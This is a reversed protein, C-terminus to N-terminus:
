ASSIVPGAGAATITARAGRGHRAPLISRIRYLDGRKFMTGGADLTWHCSNRQSSPRCNGIIRVSTKGRISVIDCVRVIHPRHGTSDCLFDDILVMGEFSHLLSRNVFRVHLCGYAVRQRPFGGFSRPRDTDGVFDALM